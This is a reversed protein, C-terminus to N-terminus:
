FQSTFTVLFFNSFMVDLTFHLGNSYAYPYFIEQPDDPKGDAKGIHAM